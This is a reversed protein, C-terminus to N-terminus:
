PEKTATPEVTTGATRLRRDAAANAAKCPGCAPEHNRRHRSYGSRTGCPAPQRPTPEVPLGLHQRVVSGRMGLREGIAGVDYGHRALFEVAFRREAATLQPRPEFSPNIAREVAIYDIDDHGTATTDVYLVTAPARVTSIM